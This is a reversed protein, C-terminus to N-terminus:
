EKFKIGNGGIWIHETDDVEKNLKYNEEKIIFLVCLLAIILILIFRM